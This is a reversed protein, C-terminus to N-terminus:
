ARRRRAWFLGGLAAGVLALSTPEPVTTDAPHPAIFLFDQSNAKELAYVDFTSTAFEAAGALLSDGEAAFASTDSFVSDANLSYDNEYVLNWIALQLSTSQAATGVRTNDAAVYSM